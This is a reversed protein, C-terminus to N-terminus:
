LFTHRFYAFFSDKGKTLRRQAGNETDLAACCAAAISLDNRHLIDVEVECAIHVSDRRSIVQKASDGIVRHM